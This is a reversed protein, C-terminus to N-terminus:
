EDTSNPGETSPNNQETYKQLMKDMRAIKAPKIQELIYNGDSTSRAFHTNKVAMQELYEEM